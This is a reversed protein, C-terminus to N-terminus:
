SPDSCVPPLSFQQFPHLGELAGGTCSTSALSWRRHDGWGEGYYWTSLVLGLFNFSYPHELTLGHCLMSRHGPPSMSSYHIVRLTKAPMVDNHTMM